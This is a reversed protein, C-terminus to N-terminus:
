LVLESWFPITTPTRRVRKPRPVRYEVALFDALDTGYVVVDTQVVSFVPNGEESPETPLYRHGVIPLLQPVDLLAARAREVAQSNAAPRAGWGSAWFGNVEVDFVVGEIPVALAARLVLHPARWDTFGDSAPMGVRLFARLDPPFAISLASELGRLEESSLGSDIVIGSAVLTELARQIFQSDVLAGYGSAM